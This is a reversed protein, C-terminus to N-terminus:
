QGSWVEGGAELKHNSNMAFTRKKGTLDRRDVLIKGSGAPVQFEVERTYRRYLRALIAAYLLAAGSEFVIMLVAQTYDTVLGYLGLFLMGTLMILAGLVTRRLYSQGPLYDFYVGIAIAFLMAVAALRLLDGTPIGMSILNDFCSEGTGPCDSPYTQSLYSLVQGKSALLLLINFVSISSGFYLSAVAGAKAGALASGM